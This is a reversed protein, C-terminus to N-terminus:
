RDGKPQDQEPPDPYRYLRGEFNRLLVDEGERGVLYNPLLPM